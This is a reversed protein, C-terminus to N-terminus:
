KKVKRLHLPLAQQQGFLKKAEKRGKSTLRIEKIFWKHPTRIGYGIMLEKDILREISKTITGQIDEKKPKQKQTKYYKGLGPKPIRKGKKGYTQVLIYKQLQSLRM